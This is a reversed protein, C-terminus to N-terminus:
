EHCKQRSLITCNFAAIVFSALFWFFKTTAVTKDVWFSATFIPFNDAFHFTLKITSGQYRTFTHIKMICCTSWMLIMKHEPLCRFWGVCGTLRRSRMAQARNRLTMPEMCVAQSPRTILEDHIVVHQDSHNVGISKPVEYNLSCLTGWAITLSSTACSM